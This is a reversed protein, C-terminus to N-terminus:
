PGVTVFMGLDTDPQEGRRPFEEPMGDAFAATVLRPARAATSAAGSTAVAAGTECLIAIWLKDRVLRPTPVPMTYTAGEARLAFPETAVILAEPRAGRHTYLALIARGTGAATVSISRALAPDHVEVQMALLGDAAVALPPGQLERHGIQEDVRLAALGVNSLEEGTYVARARLVVFQFATPAVYRVSVIAPTERQGITTTTTEPDFRGVGAPATDFTLTIERGPDGLVTTAVTLGIGGIASEPDPTVDDVRPAGLEIALTDLLVAADRPAAPADTTPAPPGGEDLKFVLDCGGAAVSLLAVAIRWSTV